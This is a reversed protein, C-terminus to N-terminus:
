HMNLLPVFHNPLWQKKEKSYGVSPRSCHSFLLKIEKVILSTGSKKEQNNDAHDERLPVFQANNLYQYNLDELGNVKPYACILHINLVTPISLLDWVAAYNTDRVMEKSVYNEFEDLIPSISDYQSRYVDINLVLEVVNRARLEISTLISGDTTSGIGGLKVFTNYFCNGDGAISLPISNRFNKDCYQHIYHEAVPDRVHIAPDFVKAPTYILSYLKLVPKLLQCEQVLEAYSKESAVRLNSLFLKFVHPRALQSCDLCLNERDAPLKQQKCLVCTRASPKPPVPPPIKSKKPEESKDESTEDTKNAGQNIQQAYDTWEQVFVDYTSREYLVFRVDKVNYSFRRISDIAVRAAEDLPFHNAGCSIAPYAISTLQYINALALSTYYCSQLLFGAREKETETYIPGVTSIVFRADNQERNFKGIFIRSQGVPCSNAQMDKHIAVVQDTFFQGMKQHIRADLGGDPILLTNTSNVIADCAEESLDGCRIIVELSGNTFSFRICDENIKEINIGSM